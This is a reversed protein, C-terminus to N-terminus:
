YRAITHTHSTHETHCKKRTLHFARACVCVWVHTFWHTILFCTSRPGVFFNRLPLLVFINMLNKKKKFLDMIPYLWLLYDFNIFLFLHKSWKLTRRHIFAHTQLFDINWEFHDSKYICFFYWIQSIHTSAIHRHQSQWFIFLRHAIGITSLPRMFLNNLMLADNYISFSIIADLKM